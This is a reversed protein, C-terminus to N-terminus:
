GSDSHPCRSVVVVTLETTLIRGQFAPAPSATQSSELDSTPDGIQRSSSQEPEPSVKECGIQESYEDPTTGCRKIKKEPPPGQEREDQLNSSQEFHDVRDPARAGGGGSADDPKAESEQVELTLFAHSQIWDTSWVSATMEIDGGLEPLNRTLRLPERLSPFHQAAASLAQEISSPLTIAVRRSDRHLILIGPINSAASAQAIPAAGGTM